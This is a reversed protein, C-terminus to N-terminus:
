STLKKIETKTLATNGTLELARSYQEPDKCLRKAEKKYAFSRGMKFVFFSIAERINPMTHEINALELSRRNIQSQKGLTKPFWGKPVLCPDRHIARIDRVFIEENAKTSSILGNSNWDKVRLVDMRSLASTSQIMDELTANKYTPFEDHYYQTLMFSDSSFLSTAKDTNVRRKTLSMMLDRPTQPSTDGKWDRPTFKDGNWWVRDILATSPISISKDCTVLVPITECAKKLFTLVSSSYSELSDCFLIEGAPKKCKTKSDSKRYFDDIKSSTKEKLEKLEPEKSGRGITDFDFPIARLNLKKILKLAFTTKGTFIEGIIVIMGKNNKVANQLLLM